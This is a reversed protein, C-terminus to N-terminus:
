PKPETIDAIKWTDKGTRVYTIEIAEPSEKFGFKELNSPQDVDKPMFGWFVESIRDNSLNGVSKSPHATATVYEFVKGKPHTNREPLKLPVARRGRIEYFQVSHMLKGVRFSIALMTSDKSWDASLNGLTDGYGGGDTPVEELPGIRKETKAEILYVNTDDDIGVNAVPKAVTVAVALSGDPSKGGEVVHFPPAAAAPLALALVTVAVRLM